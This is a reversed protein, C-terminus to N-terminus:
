LLLIFYSIFFSLALIGVIITMKKIEYMNDHAQEISFGVQIIGINEGHFILPSSVRRIVRESTMRDDRYQAILKNGQTIEIFVIDRERGIEGTYRELLKPDRHVAADENLISLIKAISRGRITTNKIMVDREAMFAMFGFGFIAIFSIVAIAVAFGFRSRVMQRVKGLEM